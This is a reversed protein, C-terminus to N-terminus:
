VVQSMKLIPEAKMGGKGGWIGGNCAGSDMGKSRQIQPAGVRKGRSGHERSRDAARDILSQYNIVGEHPM